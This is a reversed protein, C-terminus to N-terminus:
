DDLEASRRLPGLLWPPLRDRCQLELNPRNEPKEEARWLIRTNDIYVAFAERYVGSRRTYDLRMGSSADYTRMSCSYGTDDRCRDVFVRFLQRGENPDTWIYWHQTGHWADM